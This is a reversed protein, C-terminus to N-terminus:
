ENSMVSCSDIEDLSWTQYSSSALFMPEFSWALWHLRLNVNWLFIGREKECDKCPSSKLLSPSVDSVSSIEYSSHEHDSNLHVAEGVEVYSTFVLTFIILVRFFRVMPM